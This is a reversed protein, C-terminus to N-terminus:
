HTFNALLLYIARQYPKTSKVKKMNIWGRWLLTKTTPTLIDLILFRGNLKPPKYDQPNKITADFSSGEYLNMLLVTELNESDSLQLNKLGAENYLIFYNASKDKLNSQQLYPSTIEKFNLPNNLLYFQDYKNLDTSKDQYYFAKQGYGVFYILTLGILTFIKLM